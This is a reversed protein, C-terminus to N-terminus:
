EAILGIRALQCGLGFETELFHKVDRYKMEITEEAVIKLSNESYGKFFWVDIFSSPCLAFLLNSETTDPACIPESCLAYLPTGDCDRHHGVVILQAESKLWCGNEKEQEIEIIVVQGLPINHKELNM